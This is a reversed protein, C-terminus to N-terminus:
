RLLLVGGMMEKKEGEMSTVVIKWTYTGQECAAGGRTGDWGQLPDISTFVEHGYRDYIWLRYLKVGRVVPQFTENLRDETPTFANPVYVAFDPTITV